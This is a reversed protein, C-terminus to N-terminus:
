AGKGKRKTVLAKGPFLTALRAALEKRLEPLTAAAAELVQIRASLAELSEPKAMPSNQGDQQMTARLRTAADVDAQTWLAPVKYPDIAMVVEHGGLNAAVEPQCTRASGTDAAPLHAAVSGARASRDRQSVQPVVQSCVADHDVENTETRENFQRGDALHITLAM